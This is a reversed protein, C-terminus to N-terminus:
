DTRARTWKERGKKKRGSKKRGRKLRVEKKTSGVMGEEEEEKEKDRGESIGGLGRRVGRRM